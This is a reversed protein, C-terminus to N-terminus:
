DEERCVAAQAAKARVCRGGGPGRRAECLMGEKRSPLVRLREVLREAEVCGLDRVHLVHEVHAGRTGQGGCGQTPGDGHVHRKRRRWGAGERKGPRVEERM